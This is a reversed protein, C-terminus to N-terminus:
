TFHYISKLLRVEVQNLLQLVRCVELNEQNSFIPKAEEMTKTWKPTIDCPKLLANKYVDNM